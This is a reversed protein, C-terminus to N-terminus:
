RQFQFATTDTAASPSGGEAVGPSDLELPKTDVLNDVRVPSLPALKVNSMWAFDQSFNLAPAASAVPAVPAAVQRIAPAAAQAVRADPLKALPASGNPRYGAFVIAVAAAAALGGLWLSGSAWWARDASGAIEAEERRSAVREEMIVVCAKHIRCYQVYTKRRRPDSAVEAELRKADEPSIEHDLYLNLLEIFESDKM